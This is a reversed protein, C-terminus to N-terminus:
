PKPLYKPDIALLLGANNTTVLHLHLANMKDLANQQSTCDFIVLPSSTDNLVVVTPALAYQAQEFKAITLPEDINKDTFYGAYHLGTFLGRLGEFQQVFSHLPITTRDQVRGLAQGFAQSLNWLAVAILVILFYFRIKPVSFM